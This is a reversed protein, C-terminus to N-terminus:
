ITLEILPPATPINFHPPYDVAVMFLGNAPATVGAKKRDKSQLVQQCWDIEREGSGIPILVGIINRVMHHLFANAKIDMFIYQQKRSINIREITRISTKAQCASARLANFDNRGVLSQAAEQMREHDLPYHIWSCQQQFIAPRSISNVIIYRYSRATASFRAHFDEDVKIAWIVSIDKPLNANTGLLWSREDRLSESDFHIVQAQAHVGTDTRGACQVTVPHNAVCSVAEELAQQVSVLDTLRQWGHYHSGNYEIGMAIRM